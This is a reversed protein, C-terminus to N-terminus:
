TATPTRVARRRDPRSGISRTRAPRGHHVGRRVPRPVGAGAQVHRLRGDLLRELAVRDPDLRFRRALDAWAEFFDLEAEDTYWGDPGRGLPTVYFRGEDDGLQRQQNPSFVAFQTYTGSLSHLAFTVGARRTRPTPRPSSSSIPSSGGASSRSTRACARPCSRGLPTSARRSSAPAHIPRNARAALRAFDVDAHFDGSTGAPWRRPSPWSSGAAPAARSDRSTSASPSTSSRPRAARTTAPAPRTPARRAAASRRSAAARGSGPAPSTAGADGRGPGDALAPRPDDDPEHAQRHEGRRGAARDHARRAPERGRRGHGLRHHVPRPGTLDPGGRAALRGARRRQPRHRRRDRGVTADNPRRRRRAHRPLRRRRGHAQDAARGPRRRQERLAPRDPLGRRREGALLGRSRALRRAGPVTDAGHDDFLYDQYLYEGARYADTGSVLLPRARFPRRVELQPAHPARAYLLPPGPRKGSSVSPLSAAAAPLAAALLALATLAILLGRAAPRAPQKHSLRRLM